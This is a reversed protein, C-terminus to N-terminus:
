KIQTILIKKLLKQMINENKNNEIKHFNIVQKQM